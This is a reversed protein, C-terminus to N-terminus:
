NRDTKLSQVQEQLSELLRYIKDVDIEKPHNDDDLPAKLRSLKEEIERQQKKTEKLQTQMEKMREDLGSREVTLGRLQPPSIVIPDKVNPNVMQLNFSGLGSHTDGDRSKDMPVLEGNELRWMQMLPATDNPLNDRRSKDTDLVVSFEKESDDREVVLQVTDGGRHMAVAAIVDASTATPWGGVSVIRDGSKLGAKGAPSDDLLQTVETDGSNSLAIGLRGPRLDSPADSRASEILRIMNSVPLCVLEGRTQIAVGLLEGNENVLPSGSANPNRNLDLLHVMGCELGTTNETVSTANSAIMGAHATAKGTESIDVMLVPQGPELPRESLTLPALEPTNLRLVSLGTVFDNAVITGQLVKRGIGRLHVADGTTGTMAVVVLDPAIAAGAISSETFPLRAQNRFMWMAQNGFLNMSRLRDQDLERQARGPGSGGDADDLHIVVTAPFAKTAAVRFDTMSQAFAQNTTIAFVAGILISRSVNMM